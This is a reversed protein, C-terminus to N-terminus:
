MVFGLLYNLVLEERSILLSYLFCSWLYFQFSFLLFFSIIYPYFCLLSFFIRPLSSASVHFCLLMFFEIEQGQVKMKKGGIDRVRKWIWNRRRCLIYTICDIICWTRTVDSIFHFQKIEHVAHLYFWTKSSISTHIHLCKADIWAWLVLWFQSYNSDWFARLYPLWKGYLCKDHGNQTNFM